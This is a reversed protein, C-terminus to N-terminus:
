EWSLINDKNPATKANVGADYRKDPGFSWVMVRGSFEFYDPNNPPNLLGNFGTEGQGNNPAGPQRSVQPDRYIRDWAREDFNLDLTIIYPTGWPDRYIGDTGVGSQTNDSVNKADLYTYKRTNRVHGLNSGADKDMLINIVEDNSPNTNSAAGLPGGGCTVDDGSAAAANVVVSSVPMRSYEQEYSKIAQVIAAIETKAQNKKANEKVKGLVPLLLAALIGIIAIVVLLEILTFGSPRSFQRSQVNLTKM